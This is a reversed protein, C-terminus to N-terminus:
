AIMKTVLFLLQNKKQLQHKDTQKANCVTCRHWSPQHKYSPFHGIKDDYEFNVKAAM